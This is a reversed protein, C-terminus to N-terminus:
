INDRSHGGGGFFGNKQAPGEGLVGGGMGYFFSRDRLQFFANKSYRVQMIEGIYYGTGPPPAPSRAALLLQEGERTKM